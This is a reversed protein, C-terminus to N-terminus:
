VMLNTLKARQNTLRSEKMTLEKTTLKERDSELYCIFTYNQTTIQISYSFQICNLITIKRWIEYMFPEDSKVDEPNDTSSKPWNYQYELSIPLCSLRVRIQVQSNEGQWMTKSFYRPKYYIGKLFSWIDNMNFTYM